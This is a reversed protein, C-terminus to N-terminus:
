EEKDEELIKIACTIAEYLDYTLEVSENLDYNGLVERLEFVIDEKTM